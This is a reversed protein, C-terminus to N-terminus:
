TNLGSGSAIYTSTNLISMSQDSIFNQANGRIKTMGLTREFTFCSLSFPTISTGNQGVGAHYRTMSVVNDVRIKKFELFDSSTRTDSAAM